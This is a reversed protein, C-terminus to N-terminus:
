SKIKQKVKARNIYEQLNDRTIEEPKCGYDVILEQYSETVMDLTYKKNTVYEEDVKDVNLFDDKHDEYFHFIFPEGYNAEQVMKFPVIGYKENYDRLNYITVDALEYGMKPKVYKIKAFYIPKIEM